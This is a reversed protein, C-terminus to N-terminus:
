KGWLDLLGDLRQEEFPSEICDRMTELAPDTIRCRERTERDPWRAIAVFTGDEARFLASGGSGCEAAIRRTMHEWATAFDDERGPKIRWRYIVAFM